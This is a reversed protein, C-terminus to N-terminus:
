LPSTRRALAIAAKREKMRKLTGPPYHIFTLGADRKRPLQQAMQSYGLGGARVRRDSLLSAHAQFDAFMVTESESKEVLKIEGLVFVGQAKFDKNMASFITRAAGGNKHGKELEVNLRHRSGRARVIEVARALCTEFCIGYQSLQMEGRQPPIDRYEAVYQAYPLTCSLGESLEDRVARAMAGVLDDCKQQSWGRFEGKRKRFDTAHFTTFGYERQLRHLRRLLLDWERASGLFGAMVIDPAPGDTNSEDLRLTHLMTGRM